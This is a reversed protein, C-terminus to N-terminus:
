RSAHDAENASLQAQCLLEALAVGRIRAEQVLASLGRRRLRELYDDLESGAAALFYGGGDSRSVSVIPVGELRLDTILKRLQRTDNIKDVVSREFVHEYLDIMGLSKQAGVHRSLVSLLRGRREQDM